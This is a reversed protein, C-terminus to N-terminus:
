ILGASRLRASSIYEMFVECSALIHITSKLMATNATTAYTEAKMTGFSMVM